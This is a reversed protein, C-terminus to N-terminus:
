ASQVRIRIASVQLGRDQLTRKLAPALQRLKAAAAGSPALLTWGADDLPGPRVVARLSEPLQERVVEFRAQSERLRQLLRTLAESQGLAHGLSLTGSPTSGHAPRATM